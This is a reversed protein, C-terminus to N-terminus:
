RRSAFPIKKESPLLAEFFIKKTTKPWKNVLDNTINIARENLMLPRRLLVFQLKTVSLM